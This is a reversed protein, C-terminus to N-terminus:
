RRAVGSLLLQLSVAGFPRRARGVAILTGEMNKAMAQGRPKGSVNWYTPNLQHKLQLLAEDVLTLLHQREESLQFFPPSGKFLLLMERRTAFAQEWESRSASATFIPLEANIDLHGWAADLPTM